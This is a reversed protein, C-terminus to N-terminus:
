PFLATINQCLIVAIAMAIYVSPSSDGSEIRQFHRLSIDLKRSM